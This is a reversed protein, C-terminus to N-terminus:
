APMDRSQSSAEEPLFWRLTVGTIASTAAAMLLGGAVGIAAILALPQGPRWLPMAVGLFVGLGVTWAIATAVIWRGAHHVHRRLILWQATGISALLGCGLLTAVGGLLVPSWAAMSQEFTSPVLGILYALAAACTTAAVWRSRSLGPLAHRLVTAQGWGLMAGEVAGACLLSVVVVATSANVTLAGAGVAVAFGVTEAATVVWFWARALRRGRLAAQAALPEPFTILVFTADAPVTLRPHDRRYMGAAEEDRGNMVTGTGRHWQGDHWVDVAAPTTFHRWWYKRDANGALVVIRGRDQAAQVPLAIRAGSRATYRLVAVGDELLPRLDSCLLRVVIRNMASTRPGMARPSTDGSPKATVTTM